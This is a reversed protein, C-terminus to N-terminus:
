MWILEGALVRETGRATTVLLAGSDDLGATAGRKVGDPTHWEIPRGVASPSAARWTRLIDDANGRRLRDYTCPVAVLLEELLRGRDIRRGLAAELSTARAAIEGPHAAALVNMGIGVLVTQAETGLSLGESLIGALKRRGIVLDNPWKLDPYFGTTCAVAERVAVGAALTLLSLAPSPGKALPPRFLFTVYLGAGPPSSWTRGRRGRGHTQEHAAIVLGEAAKAEAAEEAIDMTSAVTSFWRLDLTFPVGRATAAAFAALVDPPAPSPPLLM